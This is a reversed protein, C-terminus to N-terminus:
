AEFAQLLGRVYGIAFAMGQSGREDEYESHPVHGPLLVGDFGVEDLTRLAALFDCDAEDLYCERFAPVAGQVGQVHGYVIDGCEGHHRIAAPIDTGMATWNGLCLNLGSASSGAIEMARAHGEPSGFLRPIGGLEEVPPDDPHLALRVGSAECVPVIARIFYEYNAWMEERTYVRDRFPPAAASLKADFSSSMSGGRGPTSLSTRWSRRQLEPENVMWNYGLAPIGARGMSEITAAVNEIQRDRGPLGLIIQDCAANPLANEIAAVRMGADECRQKAVVTGHYDWHADASDLNDPAFRTEHDPLSGESLVVDQVGYQALYRLYRDDPRDYACIRIMTGPWLM